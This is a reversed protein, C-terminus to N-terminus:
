RSIYSGRVGLVRAATSNAIEVSKEMSLNRIIGYIFGSAFADGAGTTNIIESKNLSIADFHHWKENKYIDCGAAGMTRVCINPMILKNSDIISYEYENCFLIDINALACYLWPRNINKGDMGSLTLIIKGGINMLINQLKPNNFVVSGEVLFYKAAPIKNMLNVNIQNLSNTGFMTREGDQNV